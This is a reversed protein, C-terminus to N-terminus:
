VTWVRFVTLDCVDRTCFEEEHQLMRPDHPSCGAETTGHHVQRHQLGILNCEVSSPPQSPCLQLELYVPTRHLTHKHAHTHASKRKSQRTSWLQQQSLGTGAETHCVFIAVCGQMKCATAHTDVCLCVILATGFIVEQYWSDGCHM